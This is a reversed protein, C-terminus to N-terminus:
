MGTWPHVLISGFPPVSNLKMFESLRDTNACVHQAHHIDVPLLDDEHWEFVMLSMDAHCLESQRLIDICHDIHEPIPEEPTPKFKKAIDPYYEPLMYQRITKLCHLNHLFSFTGMIGGKEDQWEALITNPSTSNRWGPKPVRVTYDSSKRRLPEAWANDLEPRPKGRFDGHVGFKDDFSRLELEIAPAVWGAHPLRIGDADKAVSTARPVGMMLFVGINLLLVFVNVAFLTWAGQRQKRGKRSKYSSGEDIFCQESDSDESGSDSSGHNM